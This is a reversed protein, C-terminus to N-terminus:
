NYTLFYDSHLKQLGAFGLPHCDQFRNKSGCLCLQSKNLKKKSVVLSVTETNLCEIYTAVTDRLPIHLFEQKAYSELIGLEGHSSSKWPEKGFRELYSQYYFFPILLNNFFERLGFGKSFFLKEEPKPCLCLSYDKYM